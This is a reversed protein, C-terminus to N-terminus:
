WKGISEFETHIEALSKDPVDCAIAREFAQKKVM